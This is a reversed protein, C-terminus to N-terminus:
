LGKKEALASILEVEKKVARRREAVARANRVRWSEGDIQIFPGCMDLLRDAIRSGFTNKVQELSLNTTVIIPQHNNWRHDIVEYLKTVTWESVREAALDNLVLLRPAFLSSIIPGEPEHTDMCDQLRRIFVPVSLFYAFVLRHHLENVIASALHTKGIGVEGRFALGYGLKEYENWNTLYDRAMTLGDLNGMEPQYNELTAGLQRSGMSREGLTDDMGEIQSRLKDIAKQREYEQDRKSCIPYMWTFGSELWPAPMRLAHIVEGCGCECTIAPPEEVLSQTTLAKSIDDQISKM